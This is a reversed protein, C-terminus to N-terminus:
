FIKGKKYLIRYTYNLSSSKRHKVSNWLFWLIPTIIIKLNQGSKPNYHQSVNLKALIKSDYHQSVKCLEPWIVSNWLIVTVILWVCFEDKILTSSFTTKIDFNSCNMKKKNRDIAHTVFFLHDKLDIIVFSGVCYDREFNFNQYEFHHLTSSFNTKISCNRKEQWVISQLFWHNRLIGSM